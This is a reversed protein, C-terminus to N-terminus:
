RPYALSIVPVTILDQPEFRLNRTLNRTFSIQPQSEAM